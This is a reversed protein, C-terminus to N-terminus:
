ILRPIVALRTRLNTFITEALITWSEWSPQGATDVEANPAVVHIGVLNGTEVDVVAGAVVTQQGDAGIMKVTGRMQDTQASATVATFLLVIALTILNLLYSRRM